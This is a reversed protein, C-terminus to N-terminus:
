VYWSDISSSRRAQEARQEGVPGREEERIMVHSM